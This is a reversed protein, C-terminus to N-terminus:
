WGSRNFWWLMSGSITVMMGCIWWFQAGEGGPLAPLALPLARQVLADRRVAVGLADDDEVVRERAEGLDVRLEFPSAAELPTDQPLAPHDSM